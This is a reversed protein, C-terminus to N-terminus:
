SPQPCTMGTHRYVVNARVGPDTGSVFGRRVREDPRIPRACRRCRHGSPAHTGYEDTIDDTAM